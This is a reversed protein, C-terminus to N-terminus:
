IGYYMRFSSCKINVFTSTHRHIILGGGCFFFFLIILGGLATWWFSCVLHGDASVTWIHWHIASTSGSTSGYVDVTQQVNLKTGLSMQVRHVIFYFIAFIIWYFQVFNSDLIIWHAPHMFFKTALHCKLLEHFFILDSFHQKWFNRM